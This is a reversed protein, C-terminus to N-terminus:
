EYEKSAKLQAILRKQFENRVKEADEPSYKFFGEGSKVGLKGEDNKQKLIPSPVTNQALFPLINKQTQYWIDLGGM